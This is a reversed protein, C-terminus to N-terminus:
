NLEPNPLTIGIAPPLVEDPGPIPLMAVITGKFRGAERSAVVYFYGPRPPDDLSGPEMTPIREVRDRADNLRCLEAALPPDDLSDTTPMVWVVSDASSGNQVATRYVSQIRAHHREAWYNLAEPGTIKPPIILTGKALFPERRSEKEIFDAIRRLCQAIHPNEEKEALTRAEDPAIVTQSTPKKEPGTEIMVGIYSHNPRHPVIGVAVRRERPLDDRNREPRQSPPIRNKM